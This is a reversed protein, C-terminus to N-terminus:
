LNEGMYLSIKDYKKYKSYFFYDVLFDPPKAKM